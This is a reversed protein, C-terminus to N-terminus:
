NGRIEFRYRDSQWSNLEIYMTWKGNMNLGTTQIYMGGDTGDSVYNPIIRVNDGNPKVLVVSQTYSTLNVPLGGTDLVYISYDTGTAVSTKIENKFRRTYDGSISSFPVNGDIVSYGTQLGADFAMSKPRFIGGIGGNNNSLYYKDGYIIAAGTGTVSGSPAPGGTSNGQSYLGVLSYLANVGTTGPEVLWQRGPFLISITSGLGQIGSPM